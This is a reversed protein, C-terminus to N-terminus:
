QVEEMSGPHREQPRTRQRAAWYARRAALSQDTTKRGHCVACLGQLNAPSHDSPDGIHDVETAPAAFCARCIPDRRLIARRRRQWDRPLQSSRRSTAWAM